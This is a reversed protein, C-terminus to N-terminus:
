IEVVKYKGSKMNYASDDHKQKTVALSYLGDGIAEITDDAIYEVLEIDDGFAEKSGFEFRINLVKGRSSVALKPNFSPCVIAIYLLVCKACALVHMNNSYVPFDEGDEIRINVTRGLYKTFQVLEDYADRAIQRDSGSKEMSRESARLSEAIGGVDLVVGDSTVAPESDSLLIAPVVSIAGAFGFLEYEDRDTLVSIAKESEQLGYFVDRANDPILEYFSSGIDRNRTDAIIEFGRYRDFMIIQPM